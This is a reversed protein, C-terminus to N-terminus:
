EAMQFASLLHLIFRNRTLGNVSIGTVIFGPITKMTGIIGRMNQQPTLRRAPKANQLLCYFWAIM